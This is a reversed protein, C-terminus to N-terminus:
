ETIVRLKDVIGRFQNPAPYDGVATKTDESVSLEDQPQVPILGAAKGSAVEQGNIVLRLAGDKTLTAILSFRGTPAESAKVTFLQGNIRVSFVPRGNELHLAYGHQRGGHALIVGNRSVPQVDCSIRLPRNAIQPTAMARGLQVAAEQSKIEVHCRKAWAEWLAALARTKDPQQPALNRMETPDAELDYLEWADGSLSVLKWRGDRVARSGEHEFFLPEARTVAKNEFAPLLSRGEMPQVKVGHREAPYQAGSVAVLTPMIDIIHGTQRRLEGRAQVGAPWHVILPARIGGEHSFHKYLRWPTNGANAWGSGYSVYSAPGGVTKLDDGTHLINRPSSSVDFGLPDWEWCAGNDSLFLILTHDLQGHQRLDGVVRGVTADLRDVMAAFVAMRRALDRRRDEPLSNWAPNDKGAYPSPKAHSKPPVLSRPTLALDPSVLGLKKQRALREERIVDWGKAFYMAEYKAIDAAHAHLPFHPANFALYLFFPQREKRAVALFDLAYDGFADTSYFTGPKGDQASTYSRATRGAPWRTYFPHEDWCSNFGGLMGYFEEFGRDTPKVDQKNHLHWKGAMYTRYGADRLVEALTVCDSALTGRYGPHQPGRDNTMSGVGAQHPYLGTLLSARTPCCRATNYFQTFRLGAQALADLHPTKIEGGYCGLDSWGLDDALILVINPRAPSAAQAAVGSLAALTAILLIALREAFRQRMKNTLERDKGRSTARTM